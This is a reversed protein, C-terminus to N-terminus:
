LQAIGRISNYPRDLLGCIQQNLRDFPNQAPLTIIAKLITKLLKQLKDLDQIESVGELRHVLDNRDDVYKKLERLVPLLTALDPYHELIAMMIPVNVFGSLKLLEGNPMRCCRLHRMLSGDEVTQLDNWVADLKREKGTRLDVSTKTAILARLSTEQFSSLLVLFEAYERNKLKTQANLYCERALAAYSRQRLADIEKSWQEDIALNVSQISQAARNFDFVSRCHGYKLLSEAIPSTLNSAQLTVLAGSYNYDQIQQKVVKLDLEDKLSNVDSYFVHAQGSRMEKPNRVQWVHSRSADGLAQLVSWATKMAPTGSSANFELFDEPTQYARAQQVAKRAEQTALFPNVPDDSFAKSVSLVAITDQTLTPVESVLWQCTDIANQQTSDTHLLFVQKLTHQTAVLHRVLTVISGETETKAFPDQQGVFSLIISLM